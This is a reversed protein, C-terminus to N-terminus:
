QGGSEQTNSLEGSGTDISNQLETNYSTQLKIILAIREDVKDLEEDLGTISDTVTGYKLVVGDELLDATERDLRAHSRIENISRMAKDCDLSMVEAKAGLEALQANKADLDSQIRDARKQTEALSKEANEIAINNEKIKEIAALQKTNLSMLQAGKAKVLEELGDDITKKLAAIEEDRKRLEERLRAIEKDQAESSDGTRQHPATSQEIPGLPSRVENNAPLPSRVENNAPLPSTSGGNSNGLFRQVSGVLGSGVNRQPTSVEDNAPLPSARNSNSERTNVEIKCTNKGYIVVSIAKKVKKVQEGPNAATKIMIDTENSFTITLRDSNQAGRGEKIIINNQRFEAVWAGLMRSFKIMVPMRTEAFGPFSSSRVEVGSFGSTEVSVATDPLYNLTMASM